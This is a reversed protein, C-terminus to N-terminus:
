SLIPVISATCPEGSNADGSSEPLWDTLLAAFAALSYGQQHVQASRSAFFRDALEELREYSCRELLKTVLPEDRAWVISPPITWREIRWGKDQFSRLFQRVVPRMEEAQALEQFSKPGPKRATDMPEASLDTPNLERKKKAKPHKNQSTAVESQSTTWELLRPHLRFYLRSRTTRRAAAVMLITGESDEVQILTKTVLSQVARSVAASERGTKELLQRHTIWDRTKRHNGDSARWGLTQRVVVLLVRLETDSLTPMITDLLRNPIPTTASLPM